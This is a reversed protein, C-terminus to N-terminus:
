GRASGSAGRRRMGPRACRAGGSGYAEGSALSGVMVMRAVVRRRRGTECAKVVGTTRSSAGWSVSSAAPEAQYVRSVAPASFVSVSVPTGGALYVRETHRGRVGAHLHGDIRFQGRRHVLDVRM